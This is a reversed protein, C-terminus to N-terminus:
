PFFWIIIIRRHLSLVQKAMLVVMDLRGINMDGTDGTDGTDSTDM